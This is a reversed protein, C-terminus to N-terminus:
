CNRQGFAGLATNINKSTLERGVFPVKLKGVIVILSVSLENKLTM